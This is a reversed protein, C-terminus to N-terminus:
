PVAPPDVMPPMPSTITDRSPSVQKADDPVTRDPVLVPSQAAVWGEAMVDDSATSRGAPLTPPDGPNKSDTTM